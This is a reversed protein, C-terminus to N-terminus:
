SKEEYKKRVNEQIFDSLGQGAEALEKMKTVNEEGASANTYRYTHFGSRSPTKFKVIIFDSGTEYSEVPSSGSVNKYSQM